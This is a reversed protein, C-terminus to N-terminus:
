ELSGKSLSSAADMATTSRTRGEEICLHIHYRSVRDSRPVPLPVVQLYTALLLIHCPPSTFHKELSYVRGGRKTSVRDVTFPMAPNLPKGLDQLSSCSYAM